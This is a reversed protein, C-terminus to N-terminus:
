VKEKESEYNTAEDVAAELVADLGASLGCLIAERARELEKPNLRRGLMREAVPQIDEEVLKFLEFEPERLPECEGTALNLIWAYEYNLDKEAYKIAKEKSDFIIPNGDESIVQNVSTDVWWKTLVTWM